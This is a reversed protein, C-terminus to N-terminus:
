WLSARDLVCWIEWHRLLLSLFWDREFTDTDGDETPFTYNLTTNQKFSYFLV